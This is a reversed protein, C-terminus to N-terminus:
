FAGYIWCDFRGHCTVEMLHEAKAPQFGLLEGVMAELNSCQNWLVKMDANLKAHVHVLTADKAVQL